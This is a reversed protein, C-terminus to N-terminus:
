CATEKVMILADERGTPTKYYNKRTGVTKFGFKKYLAVAPDNSRRVELFWKKIKNADGFENMFSLMRGALGKKQFEKSVGIHLLEGEDFVSSFVVYGAVSEKSGNKSVICYSHHEKMSSLFSKETWFDLPFLVKDIAETEPLLAETMLTIRYSTM